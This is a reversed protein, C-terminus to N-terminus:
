RGLERVAMQGTLLHTGLAVVRDGARLPGRVRAQQQDMALLSVAVPAVSGNVVRWVRPGNGREDIAGIPVAYEAPGADPAAFRTRVVGGLVLRGAHQAVTYRARRTRGLPDVAGATERLQLPLSVGDHMLVEGRAPPTFTEPFFVEVEREGAQALVAVPQGAAVVQGAEGSVDILVGAAPAPLGAYAHSNRAQVLRAQAADRRAQAQRRMLQVQELAQPSTFQKELLQRQRGLEADANALASDAAALDAEAARVLQLLDRPDLQFLLQGARVSQGADVMRSAIRGPVQFALPSEVRARVTGTMGLSAGAGGAITVTKVWPAAAPVARAAQSTTDCGSLWALALLATM